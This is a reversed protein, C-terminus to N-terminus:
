LRLTRVAEQIQENEPFATETKGLNSLAVLTDSAPVLHNYEGTHAFTFKVVGVGQPNLPTNFFSDIAELITRNDEFSATVYDVESFCGLLVLQLLRAMLSKMNNRNNM